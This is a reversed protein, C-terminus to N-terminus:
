AATEASSTLSRKRPARLTRNSDQIVVVECRTSEAANWDGLGMLDEYIPEIRGKSCDSLTVDWTPRWHRGILKLRDTMDVYVDQKLPVFLFSLRLWRENSLGATIHNAIRKGDWARDITTQPPVVFYNQPTRSMLKARCGTLANVGNIHLMVAIPHALMPVPPTRAAFDHLGICLPENAYICLRGRHTRVPLPAESPGNRLLRFSLVLNAASGVEPFSFEVGRDTVHMM